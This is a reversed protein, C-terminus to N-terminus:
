ERSWIPWALCTDCSIMMGMLIIITIIIVASTTNSGSLTYLVSQSKIKPVRCRREFQKGFKASASRVRWMCPPHFVGTTYALASSGCDMHSAHLHPQACEKGDIDAAHRCAHVTQILAKWGHCLHGDNTALLWIRASEVKAPAGRGCKQGKIQKRRRQSQRQTHTRTHRQDAKQKNSM